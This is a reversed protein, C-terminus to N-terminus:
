PQTTRETSCNAKEVIQRMAPESTVSDLATALEMAMAEASYAQFAQWNVQEPSHSNCRITDLIAHGIEKVRSMAPQAENFTVLQGARADKLIRAGTSKEHLIAVVPRRSLVAQFVKSPTYHPESSGLILVGHSQKLHNLADLYPIRAPHEIVVDSLGFREAWPRVTHSL